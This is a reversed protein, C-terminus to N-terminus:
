YIIRILQGDQLICIDGRSLTVLSHSPECIQVSPRLKVWFGETEGDGNQVAEEGGNPYLM